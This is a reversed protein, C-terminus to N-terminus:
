KAGRKKARPKTLKRNISRLTHPIGLFNQCALLNNLRQLEDRLDMLVALQAGGWAISGNLDTPVTWAANKHRLDKM